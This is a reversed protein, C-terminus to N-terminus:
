VIIGNTPDYATLFGAAQSYVADVINIQVEWHGKAGSCIQAGVCSYSELYALTWGHITVTQVPNQDISVIPIIVLRPSAPCSVLYTPTGGPNPVFVEAFDDLDDGDTSCGASPEAAMRKDIGQDTGGVKNGTLAHVTASDCPAIFESAVCYTNATEGDIINSEYEASGGGNGDYDLAGYWGTIASGAGVKVSCSANFIADGNADLCLSDGQLLAWPMADHGGALSGTQAAASAGVDSVTKGLVRGFIWSFERDLEVHLTDNPFDTTQVQITKIEGPAINNNVAWDQAKQTAGAPSLPLEQVGALAMADASNQLHRRDEFFLGIDIAMATMGLLVTLALVSILIVQGGEGRSGRLCKTM